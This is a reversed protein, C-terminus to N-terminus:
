PWSSSSAVLTVIYVILIALSRRLAVACSGVSRPYRASLRAAPRRRVPPRQRPGDLPPARRRGCRRDPGRRAAVTARVAAAIRRGTNSVFPPPPLSAVWADGLGQDKPTRGIRAPRARGDHRLSASTAGQDSGGRGAAGSGRCRHRSTTPRPGAASARECRSAASAQTAAISADPNGAIQPEPSGGRGRNANPAGSGTAIVASPSSM